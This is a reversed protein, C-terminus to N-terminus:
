CKGVPPTYKFFDSGIENVPESSRLAFVWGGKRRSRGFASTFLCVALSGSFLDVISEFKIESLLPNKKILDNKNPIM